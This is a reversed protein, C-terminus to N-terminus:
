QGGAPELRAPHEVRKGERREMLYGGEPELRRDVTRAAILMAGNVWRGFM